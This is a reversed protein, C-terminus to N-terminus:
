LACVVAVRLGELAHVRAEERLREGLVDVRREVQAVADLDARAPLRRRAIRPYQAHMSKRSSPGSSTAPSSPGSGSPPMLCRERRAMSSSCALWTTEGARRIPVSQPADGGSRHPFLM